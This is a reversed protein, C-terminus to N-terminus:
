PETKAPESLTPWGQADWHLPRIALTPRGRQDADYYHYSLHHQDGVKIIGAHGPGIMDGETDLLLTGGGENLDRRGKDLYPGTIIESRGVRINYASNTGRCCFGWNIFLYYHDNHHYIFPAEIERKRAISHIPADPKRKGTLPDLEVLKIGSWFSGFSLWLRNEKGPTVAPDIANFDNKSASQIVIGEDTWAYDPSSPDLTKNSALAIASTNKGFSSVSYYLLYRNNQHIIDPAWFDLRRPKASHHQHDM